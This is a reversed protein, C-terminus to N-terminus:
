RATYGGDATYCTGTVFAAAPSALFLIVEAIEDASGLRGLPHRSILETRQEPTRSALLPTDVYGPAVANIRIGQDAYDLAAAKTLGLVGHKAAVYAASGANGVRGMVSAVNVISGAGRDLLAPIEARMSHFVGDLNVSQVLRWTKLAIEATAANGGAGIGANNIALDLGGFRSVAVDVMAVTSEVSTVDAQVGVASDGWHRALAEAARGDRDAVVVSGGRDVIARVCAAGIGSAGGTVLCVLGAFTGEGATTM